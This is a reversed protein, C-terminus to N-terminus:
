HVAESFSSETGFENFLRAIEPLDLCLVGESEATRRCAETFGGASVLLFRKRRRGPLLESKQVLTDLVERDVEGWKVEGLLLEERGAACIDIENGSRDWWSGVEEFSLQLGKLNRGNYQSLLERVVGEFVPGMYTDLEGEIERLVPEVEGRELRSRNRFVYAYWFNFFNDKLYHRGMKEKGLVPRRVEVLDLLDRLCGLYYMLKNAGIGTSDSIEKVTRKGRSIAALISNYRAAEKLEMRLISPPEEFLASGRELVADRVCELLPMGPDVFQLYHPTGGFIGYIEIRNREPLGPFVRRVERYPFPELKLRSTARGYLPATPGTAVRQIMGISSGVLILMLPRSKLREDWWRQLRTLGLRSVSHLRQFEDIVVVRKTSLWELFADWDGFEVFEGTQERIDKSILGLLEKPECYDVYLYVGGVERLFQRVLETKGVRRRGYLIVLEGRSLGRYRRKLFELEEARDYFKSEM